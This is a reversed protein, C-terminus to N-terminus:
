VIDSTGSRLTANGPFASSWRWLEPASVLGAKVPNQHIYEIAQHLHLENRIYRDWYERHWVTIDREQTTKGAKGSSLTANGAAAGRRWYDAIRRATFKKWSTVIETMAWPNIPEFLVHVHNPMIAWALMRYREADFSLLSSQVLEGILPERLVCCGHGADM